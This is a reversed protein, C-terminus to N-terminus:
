GDSEEGEVETGNAAMQELVRKYELPMIRVFKKLEMDWNDLIKEAVNSGTYRLHQELLKRITNKDSEQVVQGLEM